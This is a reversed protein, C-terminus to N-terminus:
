AAYRTRKRARFRAYESMGGWYGYREHELAYAACDSLIPCDQCIKSVTKIPIGNSPYFSETDTGICAAQQWKVDEFRM